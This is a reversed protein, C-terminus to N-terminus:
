SARDPGYVFSRSSEIIDHPFGLPITSITDLRRIADGPLDLDLAALNDALQGTHRLPLSPLPRHGAHM